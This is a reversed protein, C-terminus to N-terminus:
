VGCGCGLEIVCQLPEVYDKYLSSAVAATMGCELAGLEKVGTVTEIPLELVDAFM